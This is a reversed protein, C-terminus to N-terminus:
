CYIEYHNEEMLISIYLYLVLIIGTIKDKWHIKEFFHCIKLRLVFQLSQM